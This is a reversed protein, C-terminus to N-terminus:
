HRLLFQSFQNGMHLIPRSTLINFIVMLRIKADTLWCTNDNVPLPAEPVQRVKKYVWYTGLYATQILSPMAFIVAAISVVHRPHWPNVAFITNPGFARELQAPTWVRGVINSIIAAGPRSTTASLILSIKSSMMIIKQATQKWQPAQLDIETSIERGKLIQYIDYAAFLGGTFTMASVVNKVREKIIPQNLFHTTTHLASNIFAISM